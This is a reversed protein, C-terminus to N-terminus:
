RHLTLSSLCQLYSFNYVYYELNGAFYDKNEASSLIVINKLLIGCATVKNKGHDFVVYCSDRTTDPTWLLYPTIYIM